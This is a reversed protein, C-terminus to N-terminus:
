RLGELREAEIRDKVYDAYSEKKPKFNKIVVTVEKDEGEQEYDEEGEENENTSEIGLTNRILHQIIFAIGLLIGLTALGILLPSIFSGLYDVFSDTMQVMSTLTDNTEELM